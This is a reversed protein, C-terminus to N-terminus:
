AAPGINALAQAAHPHEVHALLVDMAPEADMQTLAWLCADTAWPHKGSSIVRGLAPAAPAADNGIRGLAWAAFGVPCWDWKGHRAKWDKELARSLAPVAEKAHRGIAGLAWAAFTATRRDDAELMEILKPVAPKAKAGLRSLQQVALWAADTDERTRRDKANQRAMNQDKIAALMAALSGHHEAMPSLGGARFGGDKPILVDLRAHTFAGAVLRDACDNVYYEVYTYGAHRDGPSAGKPVTKKADAPDNPDLEQETEWDDPMGDGDSDPPADGPELGEMLGGDPIHCGWSGGRTRLERITRKSVADRPLCGAAAAVLRHAEEATHTSVKPYDAFEKDVVNKRPRGRKWPEVYGGLWDMYNGDLYFRGNGKRYPKIPGRGATYPPRYIRVGIMGGPGAKSYNGVINTSHRASENARVIFLMGEGSNYLVNNRFDFPYSGSLPTRSRHHALLTHHVTIPRPGHYGTIMGFNHPEDGGELWIDSEESACWQVTADKGSYLEFCDDKSWSGSVHDVIIRECNDLELARLNRGSGKAATPRVRLFRITVDHLTKEKRGRRTSLMGNITIGAGPATQGAITVNSHHISLYRRGKSVHPPVIVGSVEFVIIRPGPQELAWQLSGPGKPKLNTVKIVRGGRGGVSVAGFGEAGPFAPLARDGAGAVGVILLLIMGARGLGRAGQM